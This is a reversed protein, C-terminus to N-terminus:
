TFLFGNQRFEFHIHMQPIIEVLMSIIGNKM